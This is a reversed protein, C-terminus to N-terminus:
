DRTLVDALQDKVLVFQTCILCSDLKAKNFYRDAEIHSTRDHEVPNHAYIMASKNDCYLWM